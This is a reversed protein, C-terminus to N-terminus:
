FLEGSASDEAMPKTYPCPAPGSTLTPHGAVKQDSHALFGDIIAEDVAAEIKHKSLNLIEGLTDSERLKRRTVTINNKVLNAVFEKLKWGQVARIPIGDAVAESPKYLRLAMGHPTSVKEILTPKRAPMANSKAHFLILLKDIQEETPEEGLLRKLNEKDAQVLVLSSRANDGIASGGRAAYADGVKMRAAQKGVHHILLVAANTREALREAAVVVASMAGNSEDGGGLRSVTELVILDADPARTHIEEGLQDVCPDVTSQGFKSSVFSTPTGALDIVHIKQAVKDADFEKGMEYRWAAIKRRYDMADDETSVIVTSGEGVSQGLFPLNLARNVALGTTLTSKGTGGGAALVGVKGKPLYGWVTQVPPPDSLLDDPSFTTWADHFPGKAPEAPDETQEEALGAVIEDLEFGSLGLLRRANEAELAARIAPPACKLAALRRAVEVLRARFLELPIANLVVEPPNEPPTSLFETTNSNNM